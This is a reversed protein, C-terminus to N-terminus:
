KGTTGVCRAALTLQLIGGALERQRVVFLSTEDTKFFDRTPRTMETVYALGATRLMAEAEEWPRGIYDDAM